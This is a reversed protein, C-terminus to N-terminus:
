EQTSIEVLESETTGTSEYGEDDKEGEFTKENLLMRITVISAAEKVIVSYLAIDVQAITVIIMFVQRVSSIFFMLNAYIQLELKTFDTIHKKDPNYVNFGLIPMGIEESIVQIINILTIFILLISYKIPTNIHVSIVVLENSPGYSWYQSKEDYVIVTALVAILTFANGIICLVLKRRLTTM